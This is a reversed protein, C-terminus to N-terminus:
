CSGLEGLFTDLIYDVVDVDLLLYNFTWFWDYLSYFIYIITTLLFSIM